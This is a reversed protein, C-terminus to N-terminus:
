AHVSQFSGAPAADVFSNLRGDLPVIIVRLQLFAVRLREAIKPISGYATMQLMAVEVNHISRNRGFLMMMHHTGGGGRGVGGWGNKKFILDCYISLGSCDFRHM